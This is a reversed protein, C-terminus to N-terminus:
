PTWPGILRLLALELSILAGPLCAAGIARGDDISSQSGVSFHPQVSPGTGM